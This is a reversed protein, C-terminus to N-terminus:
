DNEYMAHVLCKLAQQLVLFSQIKDAHSTETNCTTRVPYIHFIGSSLLLDTNTINVPHTM